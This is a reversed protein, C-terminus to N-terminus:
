VYFLWSNFAVILASAFEFRGIPSCYPLGFELGCSLAPPSGLNWEVLLVAVFQIRCSSM